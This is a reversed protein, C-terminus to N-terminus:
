ASCPARFQMSDTSSCSAQRIAPPRTAVSLSAPAVAPRAARGCPSNASFIPWYYPRAPAPAFVHTCAVEKSDPVKAAASDRPARGATTFGVACLRQRERNANVEPGFRLAGSSPSPPQNGGFSTPRKLFTSGAYPSCCGPPIRPPSLAWSAPERSSSCTAFSATSVGASAM